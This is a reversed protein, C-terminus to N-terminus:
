FHRTTCCRKSIPCWGSRTVSYRHLGGGVLDYMGSGAIMQDQTYIASTKADANNGALQLLLRLTMSQPFKPRVSFGGYRPEYAAMLQERASDLMGETFSGATGSARLGRDIARAIEDAVEEIEDRRRQFREALFGLLRRFGPM